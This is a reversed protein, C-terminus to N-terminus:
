QRRGLATARQHAWATVIIGVVLMVSLLVLRGTVDPIWELWGIYTPEVLIRIATAAAVGMVVMALVQIIDYKM